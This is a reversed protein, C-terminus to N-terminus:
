NAADAQMTRFTAEDFSYGIRNLSVDERKRDAPTWYANRGQWWVTDGVRIDPRGTIRIGLVQHAEEQKGRILLATHQQRQGEIVLVEEVLGGVM